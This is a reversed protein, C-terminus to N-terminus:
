NCKIPGVVPLGASIWLLKLLHLNNDRALKTKSNEAKDDNAMTSLDTPEPSPEPTAAKQEEVIAPRNIPTFSSSPQNIPTFSSSTRPGHTRLDEATTHLKITIRPKSGSDKKNDAM